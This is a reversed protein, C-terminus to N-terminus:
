KHAAHRATEAELNAAADNGRSLSRHVNELYEPDLDVVGSHPLADVMKCDFRLKGGEHQPVAHVYVRLLAEHGEVLRDIMGNWIAATVKIFYHCVGPCTGACLVYFLASDVSDLAAALAAKLDVEHVCIHHEAPLGLCHVECLKEPRVDVRRGDSLQVRYRGSQQKQLITGRRNNLEKADELSHLEVVRGREM